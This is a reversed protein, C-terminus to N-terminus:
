QSNPQSTMTCRIALAPPQQNPEQKITMPLDLCKFATELLASFFHWVYKRIKESNETNEESSIHAFWLFQNDTIVFIGRNNTKLNDVKKGFLKCWFTKCIHKMIVLAHDIAGRLTQIDLDQQPHLRPAIWAGLAKLRRIALTENVEHGGEQQSLQGLVQLKALLTQVQEEERLKDCKESSSSSASSISSDLLASPNPHKCCRLIHFAGRCSPLWKDFFLYDLDDMESPPSIHPYLPCPSMLIHRSWCRWVKEERVLQSWDRCVLSLTLASSPAVYTFIHLVIEPPLVIETPPPPPWVIKRQENTQYAQRQSSRGKAYCLMEIWIHDVVRSL